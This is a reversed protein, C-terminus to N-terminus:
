QLGLSNLYKSRTTWKSLLKVYLTLYVKAGLMHEIRERSASGVKKLMKGGKGIVVGKQSDREVYITCDIYICERTKLLFPGSSGEQNWNASRYTHCKVM